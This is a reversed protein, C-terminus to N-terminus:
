YTDGTAILDVLYSTVSGSTMDSRVSLFATARTDIAASMANGSMKTAPATDFWNVGDNSREVVFTPATGASTSTVNIQMTVCQFPAVPFTQRDNAKSADWFQVKPLITSPM